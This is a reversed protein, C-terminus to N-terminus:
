FQSGTTVVAWTAPASKIYIGQTATAGVSANLFISGRPVHTALLVGAAATAVLALAAKTFVTPIGTIIYISGLKISDTSTVIQGTLTTDGDITADGTVKLTGITAVVLSANTFATKRTGKEKVDSRFHTIGM